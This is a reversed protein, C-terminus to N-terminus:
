RYVWSYDVKGPIGYRIIREDERYRDGPRWFNLMLNKQLLQRGKTPPDGPKFERPKDIWKYANTLGAAYVSFYDVRPDIDEWTAVGWVSKDVLDTSVPLLKSSVEVSDLLKRNPDEKEQIVPIAVPIVRDLYAKNYEHAELVFTPFFRIERNVPEIVVTGDDKKVPKLNGGTNKVHYVLYWILKRQMKGSAQPVDVWIMRVPKFTLELCWIERRFETDTAMQVLTRTEPAFKPTWELGPVGHLIEMVDKTSVTEAEQRDAPITIEVGPALARYPGTTEAAPLAKSAVALALIALASTSPLRVNLRAIRM